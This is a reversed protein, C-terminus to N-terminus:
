DSRGSRDGIVMASRDRVFEGSVVFEALRPSAAELSGATSRQSATYM